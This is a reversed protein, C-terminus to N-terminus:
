ESRLADVPQLKAAKMAPYVGFLGGLAVSLILVFLTTKIDVSISTQLVVGAAFSVLVGIVIGIISGFVSITLAEILFEKLIDLPSAGIAKKVGIEKTRESVSVLMVTMIGLGAVLLSIAGVVSLVTSVINLLNSLRDRQKALNETKVADKVGKDNELTKIISNSLSPVKSNENTKVAIESIKTTGLISQMTTYPIYAFSPIMDGMLTQLIGSGTKTIGIIEFSQVSLGVSLRINKGVANGNGFLAIALNEDLMCVNKYGMVDGRNLERGFVLEISIVQNAGGDIGWLTTEEEIAGASATSSQTLIPMANDVSDIDRILKLDRQNLQVGSGSKTSVSIGSLGLSDLEANVAETGLAGVLNVILVSAVGVAIGLMTLITRTGKRFINKLAFSFYGIV